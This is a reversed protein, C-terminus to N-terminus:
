KWNNNEAEVQFDGENKFAELKLETAQNNVFKASGIAWKSIHVMHTGPNSINNSSYILEAGVSDNDNCSIFLASYVSDEIKNDEIIVKVDKKAGFKWLSWLAGVEYHFDHQYSGCRVLRNGKILFTGSIEPPNFDTGFSIGAGNDVTDYILNNLLKIDRGGYIAIGNALCPTQITNYQYTNNVDAYTDSWMAMSDDGSNRFNCHEVISNSTGRHLNIGDAWVNRIRCGRIHVGDTRDSFWFGVKTHEIWINEILTNTGIGEIGAIGNYDDRITENGIISFDSIHCNGSRIYISAFSGQLISHWM